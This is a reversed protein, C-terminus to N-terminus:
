NQVKKMIESYQGSVIAEVRRNQARGAETQNSAIPQSEGMGTTRIRDPNIMYEDVLVKM